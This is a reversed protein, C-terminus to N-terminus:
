GFQFLQLHMILRRVLADKQAAVNDIRDGSARKDSYLAKFVDEFAGNTEKDIKKMLDEEFDTPIVYSLFKLNYNHVLM